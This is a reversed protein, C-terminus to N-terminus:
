RTHLFDSQLLEQTLSKGEAESESRENLALNCWKKINGRNRGTRKENM